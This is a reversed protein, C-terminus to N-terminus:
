SNKNFKLTHTEPGLPVGLTKILYYNPSLMKESTVLFGELIKADILHPIHSIEEFQIGERILVPQQINIYETGNLISNAKELLHAEINMERQFLHFWEFVMITLIDYTTANWFNSTRWHQIHKHNYIEFIESPDSSDFVRIWNRKTTHFRSENFFSELEQQPKYFHNNAVAKEIFMSYTSIRRHVELKENTNLTWLKQLSLTTYALKEQGVQKLLQSIKKAEALIHRDIDDIKPRDINTLKLDFVTNSM